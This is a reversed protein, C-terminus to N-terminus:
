KKVPSRKARMGPPAAVPHQVFFLDKHFVSSWLLRVNGYQIGSGLGVEVPRLLVDRSDHFLQGTVATHNLETVGVVGKEALHFFQQLLPLKRM